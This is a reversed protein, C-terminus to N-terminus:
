ALKFLSEIVYEVQKIELEPYMPLSIIKKSLKETVPFINKKSYSSKYAEQLHIPKPYHIATGIGANNLQEIIIDRNDVQLVYLHYVHTGYDMEVPVTINKNTSLCSYLEGIKKRKSNWFNLKKLKIRLIAAQINDMRSNYGVVKHINKEKQGYNRILKVKEMIELNGTIIAGADGFAGLNKSPYFSFCGIDGLTGVKRGKYEAGHAQACDEIIYLGNSKAIDRVKDMDAPQGFLHVPIIAKTKKSIVEEICDININYSDPCVDVFVPKAGVNSIAMATAIYTNSVTIVEDGVGIGLARLAIQLADTGSNVGVCYNIDIYKAFDMEFKQVESGLIFETNAMVQNIKNNISKSLQSSQKRLDFFPVNKKLM